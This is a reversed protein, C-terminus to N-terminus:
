TDNKQFFFVSEGPPSHEWCASLHTNWMADVKRGAPGASKFGSNKVRTSDEVKMEINHQSM